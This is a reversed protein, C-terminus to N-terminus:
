ILNNPFYFIKSIRKANKLKAIFETSLEHGELNEIKIEKKPYILNVAEM